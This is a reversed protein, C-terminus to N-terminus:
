AVVTNGERVLTLLNNVTKAVLYGRVLFAELAREPSAGEDEWPGYHIWPAGRHIRAVHDPRFGLVKSKSPKWDLVIKVVALAGSKLLHTEACDISLAEDAVDDVLGVIRGTVVAPDIRRLLVPPQLSRKEGTRYRRTQVVGIIPIGTEEHVLALPNLGGNLNGVLGDLKVPSTLVSPAVDRALGAIIAHDYILDPTGM